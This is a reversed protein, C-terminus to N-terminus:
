AARRRPRADNRRKLCSRCDRKGGSYRLTNEPTYEHGRTCRNTRVAIAAFGMGRLINERQTVAELHDPNVCRRNRCLHDIQLGEPVPGKFLNYAVRHGHSYRKAGRDRIRVYGTTDPAGKLTWCGTELVVLRAMFRGALTPCSSPSRGNRINSAGSASLGVAGIVM